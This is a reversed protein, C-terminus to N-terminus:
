EWTAFHRRPLSPWRDATMFAEATKELVVVSLGCSNKSAMPISYFGAKTPDGFLVKTHVGALGSSGIQNGDLASGRIEGPPMRMQPLSQANLAFFALSLGTLILTRFM